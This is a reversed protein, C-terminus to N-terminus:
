REVCRGAPQPTLHTVWMYVVLLDSFMSEYIEKVVEIKDNSLHTYAFNCIM